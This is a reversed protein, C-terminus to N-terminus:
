GRTRPSYDYTRLQSMIMFTEIHIVVVGKWVKDGPQELYDLSCTSIKKAPEHGHIPALHGTAAM